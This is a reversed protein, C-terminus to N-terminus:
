TGMGEGSQGLVVYILFIYNIRDWWKSPILFRHISMCCAFIFRSMCVSYQHSFMFYFFWKPTHNYKFPHYPFSIFSHLPNLHSLILFLPLSNHARSQWHILVSKKSQKNRFNGATRYKWVKTDAYKCFQLPYCGLLARFSNFDVNARAPSLCINCSWVKLVGNM